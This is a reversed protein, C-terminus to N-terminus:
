DFLAHRQGKQGLGLAAVHDVADHTQHDLGHALFGVELRDHSDVHRAGEDKADKDLAVSAGEERATRVDDIDQAPLDLARTRSQPGGKAM